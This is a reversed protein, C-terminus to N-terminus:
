SFIWPADLLSLAELIEGAMGHYYLHLHLGVKLSNEACVEADPRIVDFSWPGPPRGCEIYHALPVRGHTDNHAEYIGPHFGPLAKRSGFGSAHGTVYNKIAANQETARNSPCTFFEVDFLESESIILRDRREQEKELATEEGIRDVEIAYREFCFRSKALRMAAAGVQQRFDNDEILRVIRTAAAEVDLFPAIGFSTLSDSALYEAIGTASQFCVVPKGFRLADLSVLPLPDLRSSLFLLDAGRYANDIEAVAGLIACAGSLDSRKIQDELYVSYLKDEEPNFGDGIWVFRCKGKPLMDLVRKACSFFLDVGKRVQVSGAGLVVVTDNRWGQPRLTSRILECERARRAASLIGAPSICFGQPRVLGPKVTPEPTEEIAAARVIEAPFIRRSSFFASSRFQGRPRMYSPFEHILHVIPVDNEWLASLAVESAMSNVIAYKLPAHEIIRRVLATLFPPSRQEASLPGIMISSPALFDNQLAGGALTLVIVNYKERLFSALNFVLIPAGTRTVDHTVLLVTEKSAKLYLLGESLQTEPLQWAATGSELERDVTEKNDDSSLGESLQTEPLQGAAGGSELERDVAEKNDDSSLGESLQTEPLQRAETGSELERDVAENHDSSLGASLRTEPLQRVAIESEVEKSCEHSVIKESPGFSSVPEREAVRPRAEDGKLRMGARGVDGIMRLPWTLRWSLSTKVRHCERKAEFRTIKFHEVETELERIRAASQVSQSKLEKSRRRLEESRRWLEASQFHLKEVLRMVTEGFQTAQCQLREMLDSERLGEERERKVFKSHLDQYARSQLIDQENISSFTAPLPEDSAIAVSFIAREIGGTALPSTQDSDFSVFGAGEEAAIISGYVVRQGFMQLNTFYEKILAEFERAYLEKVHFENNYAPVDSYIYKDPSSIILIGEPRLVRKIERMMEKHRNHHEITEFSVALDVTGNPVPIRDCSGVLFELKKTLYKHSANAIVDQSLDVGIVHAASHALIESGYGEGCAIDLIRKGRGFQAAWLYRHVHELRIEGGVQPVYREGTWPLDRKPIDTAM